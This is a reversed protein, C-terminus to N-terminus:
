HTQAVLMQQLRLQLENWSHPVLDRRSVNIGAACLTCRNASTVNWEDLFLSMLASSLRVNRLVLDDTSRLIIKDTYIVYM